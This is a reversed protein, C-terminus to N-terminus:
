KIEKFSLATPEPYERAPEEDPQECHGCCFNENCIREGTLPCFKCMPRRRQPKLIISVNILAKTARSNHTGNIDAPSL